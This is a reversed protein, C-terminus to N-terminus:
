GASSASRRRLPTSRAWSERDRFSGRCPRRAPGACSASRRGRGTRRNSSGCPAAAARRRLELEGVLDEAAGNRPLVNRRHFLADDFGRGVAEQRAERHHIELHRHVVAGIVVDVRRFHRELQGGALGELRGHLVGLRRQQLRDHFDLHLRRHLERAVQHAVHVAAAAADRAHLGLAVRLDDPRM